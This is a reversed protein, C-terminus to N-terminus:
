YNASKFECICPVSNTLSQRKMNVPKKRVTPQGWGQLSAHRARSTPPARWLRPPATPWVIGYWVMPQPDPDPTPHLRCFPRRCGGPDCRCWAIGGELSHTVGVAAAVFCPTGPDSQTLGPLPSTQVRFICFLSSCSPCFIRLVLLGYIVGHVVIVYRLDFRLASEKDISGIQINFSPWSNFCIWKFGNNNSQQEKWFHRRDVELQYFWWLHLDKTQSSFFQIPPWQKKKCNDTMTTRNNVRKWVNEAGLEPAWQGVDVSFPNLALRPFFPCLSASNQCILNFSFAFSLWRTTM